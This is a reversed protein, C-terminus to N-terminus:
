PKIVKAMRLNNGKSLVVIYLGPHLSSIDFELVDSNVLKSLLLSGQISYLGARWSIYNNNLKIKIEDKTVTLLTIEFDELFIPIVISGYIGSGDNATAKVTVIGNNFATVLGTADIAALDKGKVLSWTVSNDTANAPMVTAILQLSENDDTITTTGNAVTVIVSTVPTIQSSIYIIMACCVGSGDNATAMATVTGNDVATVLGSNNITAQGSGPIISWTVSKDLVNSPFIVASLQLTGNDTTIFNAGGTGTVTIGTVQILQNSITVVITGYVGSGDNATARVTVTGNEIASLLGTANINALGTGNV